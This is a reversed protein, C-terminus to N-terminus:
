RDITATYRLRRQALSRLTDTADACATEQPGPPATLLGELARINADRAAARANAASLAEAAAKTRLDTDQGLRDLQGNIDGVQKTLSDVSAACKANADVAADYRPKWQAVVEDRIAADHKHVVYTLGLAFGGFIVGYFILYGIM